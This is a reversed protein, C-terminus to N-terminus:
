EVMMEKWWGTSVLTDFETLLGRYILWQLYFRYRIYIAAVLALTSIAIYTNMLNENTSSIDLNLKIENLVMSLAVGFVAM